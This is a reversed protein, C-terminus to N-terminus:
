LIKDPNVARTQCLRALEVRDRALVGRDQVVGIMQTPHHLQGFGSSKRSRWRTEYLRRPRVSRNFLLATRSDGHRGVV